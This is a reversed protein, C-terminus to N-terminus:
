RIHLQGQNGDVVLKAGNRVRSIASGVVIGPIGFERAVIAGHSLPSGYRCVLAIARSMVQSYAPRIENAVLVEGNKLNTMADAVDRVIRAQGAALGRGLSIGAMSVEGDTTSLEIEHAARKESDGMASSQELLRARQRRRALLSLRRVAAPKQASHVLEVLEEPELEFIWGKELPTLVNTRNELEICTKRLASAFLALLEARDDKIPAFYGPLVKLVQGFILARQKDLWASSLFKHPRHADIKNPSPQFAGNNRRYIVNKGQSSEASCELNVQLRWWTEPREAHSVWSSLDQVDEASEFSYPFRALHARVRQRDGSTLASWGPHTKRYHSRASEVIQKTAEDRQKRRFPQSIRDGFGHIGFRKGFTEVDKALDVPYWLAAHVRRVAFYDDLTQSLKSSLGRATVRTLDEALIREARRARIRYAHVWLPAHRLAFVLNHRRVWFWSLVYRGPTRAEIRPRSTRKIRKGLLWPGVSKRLFNAHYYGSALRDSKAAEQFARLALRSVPRKSAMWFGADLLQSVRAPVQSRVSTVPRAQVVWLRTERDVLWELDLPGAECLALMAEFAMDALARLSARVVADKTKAKEPALPDFLLYNGRSTGDTVLGEGTESWDLAFRNREKGLPDVTFLVGARLPEIMRQILVPVRMDESLSQRSGAYARANSVNGSVERVAEVLNALERLGGVSQFQGAFSAVEGDELQASSRAIWTEGSDAWVPLAREVGQAIERSWRDADLVVFGRPVPLGRRRLEGLVAAKGGVEDRDDLGIDDLDRIM